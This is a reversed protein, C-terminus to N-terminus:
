VMQHLPMLPCYSAPAKPSIISPCPLVYSRPCLTFAGYQPPQYSPLQHNLHELPRHISSSLLLPRDPPFLLLKPRSSPAITKNPQVTADELAGFPTARCM